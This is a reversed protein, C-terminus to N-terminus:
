FKKFTLMLPFDGSQCSFCKTIPKANLEKKDAFLESAFSDPAFQQLSHLCFGSLTATFISKHVGKGKLSGCKVFFM